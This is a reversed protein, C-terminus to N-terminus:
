TRSISAMRLVPPTATTTLSSFQSMIRSNTRPMLHPDTHHALDCLNPQHVSVYESTGFDLPIIDVIGALKGALVRAVKPKYTNISIILHTGVDLSDFAEVLVVTTVSLSAEFSKHYYYYSRLV